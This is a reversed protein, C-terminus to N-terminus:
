PGGAKKCLADRAEERDDFPVASDCLIQCSEHGKGAILVTDGPRAEFVAQHIAESRDVVRHFPPQRDILGREMDDLIIEPDESRPNDSTMFGVEAFRSVASAMLPRKSRDRDGGCGFVVVLRGRTMSALASCVQELADPTHAYDVFVQVDDHRGVLELRGDVARARDLAAAISLESVGLALSISAAALANKVNHRGPLRLLLEVRGRPMVLDFRTGDLTCELNEGRVDAARHLGFTSIEAGETVAERVMQSWRSDLSICATSDSDLMSFLRLKAEAYEEITGHYDLHDQTLNTFAGVQFRLGRVRSQTLAHSSVEMLAARAGRDAMERLYGNIRLPDPTTNTTPVQRGAFEMGTTGILGVSSGELELCGRVLHTVTTKGNTGTVGVVPLDHSPHGYYDCSADALAERANDVVLVPCPLDLPEEAVVAVAGRRLAEAAYASGDHRTGPIAFFLHGPQVEGSHFSLGEIGLHRFRLVERPRLCELISQLTVEELSRSLGSPYALETMVAQSRNKRPWAGIRLGLESRSKRFVGVMERSRWPACSSGDLQCPLM